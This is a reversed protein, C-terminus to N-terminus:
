HVTMYYVGSNKNATSPTFSAPFTAQGTLYVSPYHGNILPLNSVAATGGLQPPSSMHSLFSVYYGGAAVTQAGGTLAGSIWEPGATSALSTAMSNTQDILTGAETYLAM